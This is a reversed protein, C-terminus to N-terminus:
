EIELNDYLNYSIMIKGFIESVFDEDAKEVKLQSDTKQVFNPAVDNLDNFAQQIESVSPMTEIGRSINQISSRMSGEIRSKQESTLISVNFVEMVDKAFVLCAVSNKLFASGKEELIEAACSKVDQQFRELSFTEIDLIQINRLVMEEILGEYRKKAAEIDARGAHQSFHKLRQYEEINAAIIATNGLKKLLRQLESGEEFLFEKMYSNLKPSVKLQSEYPTYDSPKKSSPRIGKIWAEDLDIYRDHDTKPSHGPNLM